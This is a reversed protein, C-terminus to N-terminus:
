KMTVILGDVGVSLAAGQTSAKLELIVGHQNSLSMVNKGTGLTAGALDPRGLRAAGDATLALSAVRYRIGTEGVSPLGDYAEAVTVGESTEIRLTRGAQDTLDVAREAGGRYQHVIGTNCTVLDQHSHFFL